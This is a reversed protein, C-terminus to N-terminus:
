RGGRRAFARVTRRSIRRAEGGRLKSAAKGFPRIGPTGETRIKRLVLYVLSRMARDRQSRKVRRFGTGDTRAFRIRAGEEAQSAGRILSDAAAQGLKRKVWRAVKEQGVESIPKGPRRGDEIVNWYEDAPPNVIVEGVVKSGKLKALVHELAQGAAGTDERGRHGASDTASGLAESILQHGKAVVADVVQRSAAEARPKIVGFARGDVIKVGSPM